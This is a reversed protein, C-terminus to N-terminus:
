VLSDLQALCQHLSNGRGGQCQWHLVCEQRDLTIDKASLSLSALLRRISTQLCGPYSSSSQAVPLSVLPAVLCTAPLPSEPEPVNRASKEAFLNSLVALAARIGLPTSPLRSDLLYQLGLCGSISEQGSSGPSEVRRRCFSIRFCASIFVPGFGAWTPCSPACAEGVDPIVIFSCYNLCYPVPVPVSFYALSVSDLGSISGHVYPIKLAERTACHNLTQRGICPVRTRARTQSSGM